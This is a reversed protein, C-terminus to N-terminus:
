LLILIGCILFEVGQNSPYGAELITRAPRQRKTNMGDLVGRRCQSWTMFSM